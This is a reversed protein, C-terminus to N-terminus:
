IEGKGLKLKVNQKEGFIKDTFKVYWAASKVQIIYSLAIILAIDSGEKGFVSMAIALAISLNRMVTGYVLAIAEDRDLFLKGVVTSLTYNITYLLAIPLLGKLLITPNKFITQSKLAMAVFVIGLVGLTSIAPFKSKISKNFKDEGYKRILLRRTMNGFIMPLFVILVIQRFINALPVDVVTGALIKIYFPTAVSGLVLGLITMKIATHMNGKAFGTWSITMGSTPLLASLLLGVILLPSDAFFLKGIGFAIFPVIAFNIIIAILNAKGGGKEALERIKLTVMMPYVMMFTLPMILVKLNKPDVLKGYVIGAMMFIPIAWVLNKKLKEILKFM